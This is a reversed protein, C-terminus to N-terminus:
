NVKRLQVRAVDLNGTVGAAGYAHIYVRIHATNEPIVIQRTRQVGSPPLYAPYVGSSIDFFNAAASKILASSSDLFQISLNVIGGGTWSSTAFECEAYVTDGATWAEVTTWTVTGDTTTGGLQTSWTPETSAHSTGATTCIYHYGNPTTPTRRDGLVYATNNARNANNRTNIRYAVADDENTATFALRAFTGQQWGTRSVKSAVGVGAARRECTWGSPGNGTVGTVLVWNNTGGANDGNAMGNYILSNFDFNSSLGDQMPPVVNALVDYLARGMAQAGVATPHTGDGTMNTAPDGTAPDAIARYAECLIVGPNSRAYSRIWNNVKYLHEKEAGTNVNTSPPVTMAIVRIGSSRLTEYISQLNSITQAYTIGGGNTIDNIGGLVCCWGPSQALVDSSIRALMQTTTNGSVGANVISYFRGGLMQNAWVAYGGSSYHEETATTTFNQGSLSDGFVCLTPKPHAIGVVQAKSTGAPRNNYVNGYNAWAQGSVFLCLSLVMASILRRMIANMNIEKFYNLL